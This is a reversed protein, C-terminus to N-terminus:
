NNCFKLIEERSIKSIDKGERECYKILERIRLNSLEPDASPDTYIGKTKEAAIDLEYLSNEPFNDM